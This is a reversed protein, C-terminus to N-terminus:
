GEIVEGILLDEGAFFEALILDVKRILISEGSGSVSDIIEAV